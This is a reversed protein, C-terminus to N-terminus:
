EPYRSLFMSLSIPLFIMEWGTISPWLRCKTSIWPRKLAKTKNERCSQKGLVFCLLYFFLTYEPTTKWNFYRSSHSILCSIKTKNCLWLVSTQKLRQVASQGWILRKYCKKWTTNGKFTLHFWSSTSNRPSNNKEKTPRTKKNKETKCLPFNEWPFRWQFKQLKWQLCNPNSGRGFSM